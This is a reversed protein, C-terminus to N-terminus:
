RPAHLTSRLTRAERRYQDLEARLILIEDRAARVTARHIIANFQAAVERTDPNALWADLRRVVDDNM